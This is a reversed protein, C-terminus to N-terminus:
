EETFEVKMNFTAGASAVSNLNISLQENAGRLVVAQAPRSGFELVYEDPDGTATPIFVKRATVAGISTGLTAANTTYSQVVASAAPSTSDHPVATITAVTGGTNATSRKIIVVDRVAATTQTGSFAIKTVRITRSASGTIRFVDTTVAGAGVAIATASYSAKAGDIPSASVTYSGLQSAFVTQQSLSANLGVNVTGSTFASARIRIQTYGGGTILVSANTTVTFTTLYPLSTQVIYMPIQQWTTGNAMLGEAVLTASWTGSIIASVTFGGQANVAVAGNVATITGNSLTDTSQASTNAAITNLVTTQSQQEALTSAGSPLPLSAASVPQTAQFFTGSVPVATARLQADTLPGTVAQTAPFNSVSVPVASARLQIDTLPGTVALSANTVNTQFTGTGANATITSLPTLTSIQAAPLVVPVSAGALAQGLAPTKSDISSLSTNGTTQLSSTAAGTPLPLSVASVPQTAQFFTGSVPVASARLQTDTLPGTVALSANGVTVTGSVTQTAPFNSVSVPVSSARLQADTLPGTVAISSNTINTQFTGTGANATITSLPTLATIQASPLVVPVSAGALAQGLSPIKSDISTLSLNGSTQLASTAAGSALPVAALSVPVSSARLQADTLPGTVAQTAPFNNISVSNIYAASAVVSVLLISFIVKLM